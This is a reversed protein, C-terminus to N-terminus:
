VGVLERANAVHLQITTILEDEDYPKVLYDTAGLSEAKNRHKDGSRSTVMVVPLTEYDSQSRLTSLLEYGDMRPMEVDLLVLDPANPLRQLTELADVGDRCLITEMGAANLIKATIRRVSVSDDVIMVTIRADHAVDNSDDDNSV